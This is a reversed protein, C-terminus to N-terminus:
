TAVLLAANVDAELLHRAIAQGMRKANTITTGSGVTSFYYSDILGLEGCREKARLAPLPLVYAPNRTNIAVTSFGGHVSEWDATSLNEVGDIPYRFYEREGGGHLGDPNGKPVLGGSTVLGLKALRVDSVPPAAPVLEYAQVGVESTWPRDGLRALLMEAAREYGPQDRDAYNRIGRPLYGEESASGLREGRGLRVAIHALQPLIRRM